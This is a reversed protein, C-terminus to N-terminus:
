EPDSTVCCNDPCSPCPPPWTIVCNGWADYQGYSCRKEAPQCIGGEGCAAENQMVAPAAPRASAAAAAGALSAVLLVVISKVRM